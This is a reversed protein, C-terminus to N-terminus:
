MSINQLEKGYTVAIGTAEYREQIASAGLTIAKVEELKSLEITEPMERLEISKQLLVTHVRDLVSVLSSSSNKTSYVITLRKDVHKNEKIQLFKRFIQPTSSYRAGFEIITQADSLYINNM